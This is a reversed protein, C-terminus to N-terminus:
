QWARSKAEPAILTAREEKNVHDPPTMVLLSASTERAHCARWAMFNELSRFEEEM